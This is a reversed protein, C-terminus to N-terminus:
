LKKENRNLYRCAKTPHPRAKRASTAFAPRAVNMESAFMEALSTGALCRPVNGFDLKSPRMPTSIVINGRFPSDFGAAVAFGSVGVHTAGDLTAGEVMSKEIQFIAGL